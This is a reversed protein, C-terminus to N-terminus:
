LALEAKVKKINFDTNSIAKRSDGEFTDTCTSSHDLLQEVGRGGGKIRYM